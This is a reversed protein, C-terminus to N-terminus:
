RPAPACVGHLFIEAASEVRAVLNERDDGLCGCVITGYLLDAFANAADTVDIPRLEGRAIGQRLVEELGGRKEARYVLHTPFISDRFEAREHIMIEVFEPHQQYFRACARAITRVVAATGEVGACAERVFEGVEEVGFRAVALFLQEKNEFHRYVTGKGVRAQDAIVQVDGRRLGDRAFVELAHQLIRRRKQKGPDAPMPTEEAEPWEIAQGEV